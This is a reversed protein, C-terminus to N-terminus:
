KCNKQLRKRYPQELGIESTDIPHFGLKLAPSGRKLGFNGNPPDVFMPDAILGEKDQGKAQWEAFSWEGFQIPTGDRKFYLNRNFRYGDGQWNRSLLPGDNWYVINREFTFGIHDEDKIRTIQQKQGFAFINNRVINDRGYHHNYGGHSTRYVINNELLIGTSGEDTYLGWGGFAYANIDCVLNNRVETGEAPGLLYIGGMDNLLGQGINHIYNYEITNKISVSSKYGWVWGTAIGTYYTNYIENHAIRNHGSHTLLIGIGGHFIEGIHHIHNNTVQNDSTQILISSNADGGGIKIGGAGMHEIENGNISNNVCGNGLEIAYTGLNKFTCNEIQSNHLGQATITGPVMNAGQVDGADNAPLEWENHSFTLGRLQIYEIFKNNEPQGDFSMLYTLRPAIVEARSLNEGQKPMYSLVGTKRNLYWKGPKDLKEYVNDVYFRAYTSGRFSETLRRRSNRSFTVIRAIDDVSLIPLHTDVWYHLVVVEVDTLNTWRSTIHGPAFRFNNAPTQYNTNTDVGPLESIQYYGTDPTRARYRRENNIFLQRFNWKGEHVQPLLATFLGREDRKWNTILQGGSLVPIEGPYAAYIIPANPSGSDEPAFVIPESLFYRGGRVYVFVPKEMKGKGKLQRVAEIARRITAFPGDKMIGNTKALKGSWADNGSPAVYFVFSSQSSVEVSQAFISFSIIVNFILM